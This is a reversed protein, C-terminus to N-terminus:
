VCTLVSGGSRSVLRKSYSTLSVNGGLRREPILRGPAGAVGDSDDKQEAAQREAGAVRESVETM